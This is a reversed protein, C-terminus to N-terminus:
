HFFGLWLRAVVRAADADAIEAAGEVVGSLATRAARGQAAPGGPWARFVDRVARYVAEGTTFQIHRQAAQRLADSAAAPDRDWGLMRDLDELASLVTSVPVDLLQDGLTGLKASYARSVADVTEVRFGASRALDAFRQQRVAYSVSYDGIVILWADAVAILCKATQRALYRREDGPMAQEGTVGLLMGGTRNGILFAAEVVDLDAPAFTGLREVIAPDGWLVRSGYRLDFDCLRPAPGRALSRGGSVDVFDMRFERALEDGLGAVEAGEIGTVLL